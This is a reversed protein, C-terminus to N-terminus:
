PRAGGFVVVGRANAGSKMYCTAPVFRALTATAM